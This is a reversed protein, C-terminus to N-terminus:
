KLFLCITDILERADFPKRVYGNAGMDLAAKVESKEASATVYILPIHATRKSKRLAALVEYGNMQPMMIDCLVLDPLMAEAVDLGEKGDNASIVSYGSLELIEITNERIEANDEILLITKM